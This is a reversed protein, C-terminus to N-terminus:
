EVIKPYIYRPVVSVIDGEFTVCDIAYTHAVQQAIVLDKCILVNAFIHEIAAETHETIDM